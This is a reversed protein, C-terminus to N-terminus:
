LVTKHKVTVYAHQTKFHENFSTKFGVLTLDINEEIARHNAFDEILELVDHAIYSTNTADITMKIGPQILRLTNKISAKNLFSVEESLTMYVEDAGHLEDTTLSYARRMNGILIYSISIVMGIGVGKLLDTAVIAVLTAIFPIFQYKGKKWFHMVLSPKALKYGVLLLVASLTALPILNLIFPISLVSVLLLLGHIVTAMKSTAGASANASSRVVVSTMPLGGILSSALNGLGQAFLERNTNTLRKQTDMKDAA